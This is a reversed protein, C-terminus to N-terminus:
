EPIEKSWGTAGQGGNGGTGSAGTGGAGGTVTFTAGNDVLNPSRVIIVGGGGGGGGGVNSGGSGGAAGTATLVAGNGLTITPAVLIIVGGGYGGSGGSSGGAGGISGGFLNAEPYLPGTNLASREIITTVSNGSGGTPSGSTGATGGSLITGIAANSYGYNADGASGGAAGYGGGGGTAGIDGHASSGAAGTAGNESLTCSAGVTISITAQIIIPKSNANPTLTTTGSCTWTTAYYIGSSLTQTSSYSLAGDSGDGYYALWGPATFTGSTPSGGDALDVGNSAFVALHSPTAASAIGVPAVPTGGDNIMSWRHAVACYTGAGACPIFNEYNTGVNSASAGTGEPATIGGNSGLTGYSVATMGGAGNTSADPDVTLDAGGNGIAIQGATLTGATHTVTGGGNAQVFADTAVKTSDDGTTQTTATEGNPLAPNLAITGTNTLPNPTATLGVGSSVSTVSGSSVSATVASTMTLSATGTIGEACLQWVNPVTVYTTYTGNNLITSQPTTVGILNVTGNLPPAVYVQPQLQGSWNGTVVVSALGPIYVDLALCQSGTLNGATSTQAPPAFTVTATGSISQACVQFANPGSITTTFIGNARINPQPTTIGIPTVTVNQGIQGLVQPQLIGSWSGTVTIVIPTSVFINTSLCQSGTLNTPGASQAFAASSCLLLVFFLFRKM